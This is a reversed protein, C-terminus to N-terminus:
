RTRLLRTTIILDFRVLDPSAGVRFITPIGNIIRHPPLTLRKGASAHRSADLERRGIPANDDTAAGANVGASRKRYRCLIRKVDAVPARQYFVPESKM